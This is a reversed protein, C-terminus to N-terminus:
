TAYKTQIVNTNILCSLTTNTLLSTNFLLVVPDLDACLNNQKIKLVITQAIDEWNKKFLDTWTPM